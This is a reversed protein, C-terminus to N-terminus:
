SNGREKGRTVDVMLVPRETETVTETLTERREPPGPATETVTLTKADLQVTRVATEVRPPETLRVTETLPAASVTATSTVTVPAAAPVEAASVRYHIGGAMAGVGMAFMCMPGLWTKFWSATGIVAPDLSPLYEVECGSRWYGFM